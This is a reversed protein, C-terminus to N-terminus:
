KVLNTIKSINIKKYELYKPVSFQESESENQNEADNNIVEDPNSYDYNAIISRNTRQLAFLLSTTGYQSELLLLVDLDSQLFSM